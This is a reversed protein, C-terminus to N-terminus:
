LVSFVVSEAHEFFYTVGVGTVMACALRARLDTSSLIGFLKVAVSGSGVGLLWQVIALGALYGSLVSPSVLEQQVITQGFAWGHCLGLGGFLAVLPLVALSKGYVGIGGLLILSLAVLFEPAPLLVGRVNLMVGALVGSILVVLATKGYGSYTAIIGAVLIFFLHDFGLVPHGLGSLLGDSFSEMPLGGLPHHALVPQAFILAATATILTQM